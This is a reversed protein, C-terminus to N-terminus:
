AILTLFSRLLLDAPFAQTSSPTERRNRWSRMTSATIQNEGAALNVSSFLTPPEFRFEQLRSGGRKQKKRYTAGNQLRFFLSFLRFAALLLIENLTITM